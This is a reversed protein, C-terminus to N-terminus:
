NKFTALVPFHDSPYLDEVVRKDLQISDIKILDSHLIWDIREADPLEGQFKHFSGTEPLDLQLWGDQLKLKEDIIERVKGKPGENFDGMLIIPLKDINLNNLQECLVKAQEQRTETKVHDLHVNALLMRLNNKTEVVAWTCLRPFASDFSKSGALQPTESLWIDGSHLLRLQNPDLFLCPYMREDIWNRHADILQFSPVQQALDYLQGKRGEQSGFVIPNFQHILESILHKRKSWPHEDSENEFRINISLVRM